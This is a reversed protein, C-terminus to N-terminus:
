YFGYEKHIAIRILESATIAKKNLNELSSKRALYELGEKVKIPLTINVQVSESKQM